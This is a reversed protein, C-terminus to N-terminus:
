LLIKVEIELEKDYPNETVMFGLSDAFHYGSVIYLCAPGDEPLMEDEYDEDEEYVENPDFDEDPDYDECEIVTWVRNERLSLELCYDHDKGFMEFFIGDWSANKDLHNKQPKYKEYFEEETIRIVTPEM